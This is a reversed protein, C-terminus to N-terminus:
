RCAARSRRRCCLRCDRASRHCFLCTARSISRSSLHARCTPSCTSTPCAALRKSRDAGLGRARVDSRLAPAGTARHSATGEERRLPRRVARCASRGSPGTVGSGPGQRLWGAAAQLCRYRRRQLHAAACGQFAGARFAGAVAASIFVVQDAAALMPRAILANAARWSAGCCRTATSSVAAIHQALVVPKRHWRAALMAVVNTPYLSDHLLVADAAGCTAGSPLSVGPDRCPCRSDSGASRSTGPASRVAIRRLGSGGGAAAFRRDCVLYGPGRQRQLERALRGAVIEIGGRHSEFYASGILVRM